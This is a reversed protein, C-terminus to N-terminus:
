PVLASKTKYRDIFGDKEIYPTLNVANDSELIINWGFFVDPLEGSANYIRLKEQYGKGPLEFEVDLNPLDNKVNPAYCENYLRVRAEDESMLFAKLKVPEGSTTEAAGQTDKADTEGATENSAAEKSEGKGSAADEATTESKAPSKATEGKGTSCGMCMLSTIVVAAAAQMWRKRM